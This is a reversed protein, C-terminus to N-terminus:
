PARAGVSAESASGQGEKGASSRLEPIPPALGHAELALKHGLTGAGRPTAEWVRVRYRATGGSAEARELEVRAGHKVEITM